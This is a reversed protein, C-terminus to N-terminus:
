IYISVVYNDKGGEEIIIIIITKKMGLASHFSSLLIVILCRDSKGLKEMRRESERNIDTLFRNPHFNAAYLPRRM